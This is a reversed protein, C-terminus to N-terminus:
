SWWARPGGCTVLFENERSSSTEHKVWMWLTLSPGGRLVRSVARPFYMEQQGATLGARSRVKLVTSVGVSPREDVMVKRSLCCSGQISHQPRLRSHVSMDMDTKIWGGESRHAPLRSEGPLVFGQLHGPCRPGWRWDPGARSPQVWPVKKRDGGLKEGKETPHLRQPCASLLQFRPHQPHPSGLQSDPPPSTLGSLWCIPPILPAFTLGGAGVNRRLGNERYQM